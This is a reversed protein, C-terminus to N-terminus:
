AHKALVSPQIASLKIFTANTQIHESVYAIFASVLPDSTDRRTYMREISWFPYQNNVVLGPTPAIGDINIAIITDSAQNASGLDAYGIAGQTTGVQNIVLQTSSPIEQPAKPSGQLVFRTFATQTGSDSPRGFLQIPLDPGQLQKWNTYEGNYIKVIQDRSLSTIGVDKNVIM